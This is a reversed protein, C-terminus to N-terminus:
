IDQTVLVHDGVFKVECTEDCEAHQEEIFGFSFLGSFCIIV